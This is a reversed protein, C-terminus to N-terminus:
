DHNDEQKRAYRSVARPYQFTQIVVYGNGAGKAVISQAQVIRPVPM